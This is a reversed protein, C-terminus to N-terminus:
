GIRLLDEYVKKLIGFDHTTVKFEVKPLNGPMETKHSLGNGAQLMFGSLFCFICFGTIAKKLNSDM